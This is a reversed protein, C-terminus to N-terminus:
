SLSPNGYSPSIRLVTSYYGTSCVKNDCPLKKNFISSSAKLICLKNNLLLNITSYFVFASMM